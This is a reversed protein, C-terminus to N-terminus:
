TMYNWLRKIKNWLWELCPMGGTKRVGNHYNICKDCSEIVKYKYDYAYPCEINEYPCIIM